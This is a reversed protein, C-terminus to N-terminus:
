YDHAETTVEETNNAEPTEDDPIVFCLGVFSIFVASLGYIAVDKRSPSFVISPKVLGIISVFVTIYFVVIMFDAFSRDKNDSFLWYIICVILLLLSSYLVYQPGSHQLTQLRSLWSKKSEPKKKLAEASTYFVEEYDAPGSETHEAIRQRGLKFLIDDILVTEIPHQKLNRWNIASFTFELEEPLTSGDIIYPIIEDKQKKNFAYIIESQTFKSAYSNESALFLFMRSEKIAKALLAPFEMGGTIGQRDIFYTIGQQKFANCIRDAVAMDKRSYSIFIDYKYEM